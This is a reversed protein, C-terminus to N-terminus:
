TSDLTSFGDESSTTKVEDIKVRKKRKNHDILTKITEYRSQLLTLKENKKYLSMIKESILKKTLEKKMFYENGLDTLKGRPMIRNLFSEVANALCQFIKRLSQNFKVLKGWESFPRFTTM